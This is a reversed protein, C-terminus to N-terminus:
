IQSLRYDRQHEEMRPTLPGDHTQFDPHLLTRRAAKDGSEVQVKTPFPGRVVRAATDGSEVQAKTPFLGRVVRAVTEGSEVQAKSPVQGRVMNHGLIPPRWLCRARHRGMIIM